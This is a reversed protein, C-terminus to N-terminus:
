DGIIEAVFGTKYVKIKLQNSQTNPIIQFMPNPLELKKLKLNEPHTGSIIVLILV